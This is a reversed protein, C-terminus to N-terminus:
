ETYFLLPTYKRRRFYGLLACGLLVLVGCLLVLSLINQIKSSRASSDVEMLSATQQAPSCRTIYTDACWGMTGNLRQVFRWYYLHDDSPVLPMGIDLVTESPPLVGIVPFHMGPGLRHNLHQQVCYHHQQPAASDPQQQHLSSTLGSTAYVSNRWIGGCMVSWNGPCHYACDALASAGHAGYSNGCFCQRAYQMGAYSYGRLQCEKLCTVPSNTPRDPTHAFM